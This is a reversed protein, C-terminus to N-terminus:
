ASRSTGMRRLQRADRCGGARCSGTGSLAVDVHNEDADDSTLRLTTTKLGVPAPTFRVDLNHTAGPAVTFPAGGQTIAFEGAQGGTLSTGTM